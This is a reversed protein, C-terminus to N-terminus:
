GRTKEDPTGSSPFLCHRQAAIVLAELVLDTNDLDIGKRVWAPPAEDRLMGVRQDIVMWGPEGRELLLILAPRQAEHAFVTGPGDAAHEREAVRPTHGKSGPTLQATAAQRRQRPCGDAPWEGEIPLRRSGEDLGGEPRRTM